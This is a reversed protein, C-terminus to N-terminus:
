FDMPPPALVERPRAGDSPGVVGDREMCEIMRAARNYGVRLRRQVMSISAQRETTVIVVAEDYLEDYEEDDDAGASSERQTELITEDYEPSGQEKLFNVMLEIETESVFAGHVRTQQSSGPPLFLMDGRGLLNEAGNSDLITRSDTKQAVRLAIRTPFNAKILGTIVDVSPRQTALILHLGAARAKQALRAVATEVDKSAVMMLDAFEDIICVIYPLHKHLPEGNENLKLKRVAESSSRGEELDKECQKTLADVRKNYSVINRVAMETLLQYRREMEGVAWQLAASAKQPDTVVPLLLHPIGEYISFELMKPDIMLLRVEEPTFRFLLSVIMTNVAVSKGSGTAGAVLLHPMSALDAVVPDGETDKGLAMPMRAKSSQFRDDAVIEKLFVTERYDNPVEIGVVGKGPIPAIIRVSIASLAMALDDSLGAIKSLKVGAAPLFEFMTIVPGQRIEVVQGQVGFSALKEELQEAMTRLREEDLGREEPREYNLFRLPPLVFDSPADRKLQLPVDGRELLAQRERAQRQADSETITPGESGPAPPPGAQAGGAASVRIAERARPALEVEQRGGDLTEPGGVPEDLTEPGEGQPAELSLSPELLAEQDLELEGFDFSEQRARAMKRGPPQMADLDTGQTPEFPELDDVEEIEEVEKGRRGLGFLGRLSWRSPAAEEQAEQAEEEVMQTRTIKLPERAQEKVQEKVQERAKAEPKKRAKAKAEKEERAPAPEPAGQSQRQELLERARAEVAEQMALRRAEPDHDEANMERLQRRYERYGLARVTIGETSRELQGGFWLLMQGLSRDTILMLALISVCCAFLWTGVNGIMTGLWDGLLQGLLGGAKHDLIQEGAFWMHFIIAGSIVLMGYGVFESPKLDPRRGILMFGGLLFLVGVFFFAGLGFTYLLVEAAYTGVAGILNSHAQLDKSLDAVDFSILALFLAVSLGALLLGSIESGRQLYRPDMWPSGSSPASAQSSAPRKKPTKRPSKRASSASQEPVDTKSSAAM